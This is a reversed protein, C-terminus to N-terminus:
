WGVGLGRDGPVSKTLDTLSGSMWYIIMSWVQWPYAGKDADVGGVVWQRFGLEQQKFRKGCSTADGFTALFLLAFAIGVIKAM